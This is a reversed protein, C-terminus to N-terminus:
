AAYRWCSPPSAVRTTSPAAGMSVVTGFTPTFPDVTMAFVQVTDLHGEWLLTRTGPRGRLRAIVNARGPLVTDIEVDLGIRRLWDFVYEGIRAEGFWHDPEGERRFAPNVSPIAVLEGLLAAVDAESVHM